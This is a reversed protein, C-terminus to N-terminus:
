VANNIQAILKNFNMLLFLHIFVALTLKVEYFFDCLYLFTGIWHIPYQIIEM